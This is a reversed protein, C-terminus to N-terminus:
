LDKNAEKRELQEKVSKLQENLSFIIGMMMHWNPLFESPLGPPINTMETFSETLSLDNYRKKTANRQSPSKSSISENSSMM